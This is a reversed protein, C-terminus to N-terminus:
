VDPTNRETPQLPTLADAISNALALAAQPSMAGIGGVYLSEGELYVRPTPRCRWCIGANSKTDHDRCILCARSSTRSGM